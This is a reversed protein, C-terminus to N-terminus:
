IVALHYKDSSSITEWHLPIALVQLFRCYQSITKLNGVKTSLLSTSVGLQTRPGRREDWVLTHLSEGHVKLIPKLNQYASAGDILVSLYNLGRISTLFIELDASFFPVPQELRLVFHKLAGLALKPSDRQGVLLNFAQALGTCSELGLTTLNNFDIDLGIEGRLVKGFDLGCLSLSSLSLRILPDPGIKSLSNKIQNALSTSVEDYPPRRQLAYEQAIRHTAGLHLCHLSEANM